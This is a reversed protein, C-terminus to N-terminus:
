QLTIVPLLPPLYYPLCVHSHNILVNLVSRVSVFVTVIYPITLVIHCHLAWLTHSFALRSSSSVKDQQLSQLTGSEEQLLRDLRYLEQVKAQPFFAYSSDGSM